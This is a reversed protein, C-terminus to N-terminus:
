KPLAPPAERLARLAQETAELLNDGGPPLLRRVRAANEFADIAGPVDGLARRASGLDYWANFALPELEIARQFHPIAEAPRELVALVQGWSLQANANGPYRTAMAEYAARAEEWNGLACHVLGLNDDITPDPLPQAHNLVVAVLMLERAHELEATAHEADLEAIARHVEAASNAIAADEFRTHAVRCAEAVVRLRALRAAPDTHEMASETLAVCYSRRAVVSDPYVHVVRTWLAADDHWVPVLQWTWVALVLCATAACGAFVVRLAAWRMSAWALAGGFLLAFPLCTLYAYRDAMLQPGTQVLGLIPLALIAFACWAALVARARLMWLLPVLIAVAVAAGLFRADFAGDTLEFPHLPSTGVPVFTLLPYAVVGHLVHMLRPFVGHVALPVIPKALESQGHWALAAFVVGLVLLPAKELVLEGVGRTGGAVRARRFPFVDFVFLALPLTMGTGKGLLALVFAACACYADRGWRVEGRALHRVWFLLTLVYFLGSVVDRRETLWAVSEVRLPHVAFVLATALATWDVVRSTAGPVSARLFARALFFCAVATLAHFLVNTFHFVSPDSGWLVYEVGFTLWTLPQYPGMHFTTFMWQLRDGSLGQWATNDVFNAHDDWGLFGGDLAPRFVILVTAAALLAFLWARWAGPEAGPSADTVQAAQAHTAAPSLAGRTTQEQVAPVRARERPM